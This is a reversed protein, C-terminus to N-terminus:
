IQQANDTQRWIIPIQRSSNKILIIYVYKKSTKPLFTLIKRTTEINFNAM